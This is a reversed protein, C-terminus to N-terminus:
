NNTIDVYGGPPVTITTGTATYNLNVSTATVLSGPQGGNGGPFTIGLVTNSPGQNGPTIPNYYDTGPLTPNTYANGPVIPNYNSTGPTPPNYNATGPTSPNYYAYGPSSPNYYANGPTAPNYYPTGPVGYSYSFSIFYYYTQNGNYTTGSYSSQPTNYALGSASVTTTSTGPIAYSDVTYTWYTPRNQYSGSSNSYSSVPTVSPSIGVASDVSHAYQYLDYVWLNPNSGLYTGPTDPNYAINGPVPSYTGLYNGPVVPNTSLYNGPVAPNTSLYNGGTPPYYSTNAGTPPNTGLYTGGTNPNGPTGRGSITFTTKGYIPIYVSSAYLTTTGKVSPLTKERALVKGIGM